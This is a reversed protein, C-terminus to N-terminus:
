HTQEIYIETEKICINSGVITYRMEINTVCLTDNIINTDTTSDRLWLPAHPWAGFGLFTPHHPVSSWYSAAQNMSHCLVSPMISRHRDLSEKGTKSKRLFITLM